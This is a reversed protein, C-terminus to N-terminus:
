QVLGWSDLPGSLKDLRIDLRKGSAIARLSFLEIDGFAEQESLLQRAVALAREGRCM